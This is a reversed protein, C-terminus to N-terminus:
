RTVGKSTRVVSRVVQEPSAGHLHLREQTSALAPKRPLDSELVRPRRPLGRNAIAGTRILRRLHAATYGSRVAAEQITLLVGARARRVDSVFERCLRDGAVLVGLREYEDAREEWRAALDADSTQALPAHPERRRTM